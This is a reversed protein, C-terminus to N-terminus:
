YWNFLNHLLRQSYEDESDINSISKSIEDYYNM